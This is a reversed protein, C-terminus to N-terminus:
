MCKEIERTAKENGVGSGEKKKEDHTWRLVREVALENRQWRRRRVSARRRGKGRVEKVGCQGGGSLIGGRIAQSARHLPPLLLLTGGTSLYENYIIIYGIHTHEDSRTRSNVDLFHYRLPRLPYNGCSAPIHWSPSVPTPDARPADPLEKDYFITIDSKYCPM